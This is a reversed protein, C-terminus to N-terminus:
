SPWGRIKKEIARSPRSGCRERFHMRSEPRRVHRRNQGADRDTDARHERADVLHDIQGVDARQEREDQHADADQNKRFRSGCRGRAKLVGNTGNNRTRPTIEHM